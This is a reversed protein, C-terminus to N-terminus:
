SVDRAPAAPTSGNLHLYTPDFDGIRALRAWDRITVWRRDRDIAGEDGLKQLTRNIHVSTLGLMDGMQEQSVPLEFRGDDALGAAQLRRSMECLFHATRTRADRRGMNLAWERFISGEVLTERWMARGVAPHDAVIATIAEVPIYAAAVPEIAQINHDAVGLLANPLDVMDGTMHLSLIQRGGNGAIKHRVAFGSLLACSFVPMDGERVIFQHTDLRRLRHPLGLVAACDADDLLMWKQLKRLLPMLSTPPVISM